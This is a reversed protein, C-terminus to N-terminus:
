KQRKEYINIPNEPLVIEKLARDHWRRVTSTDVFMEAAIQEWTFDDLFRLRLVTQGNTDGVSNITSKIQEKLEILTDIENNVTEELAMLKEVTRVFPAETPASGRIHEEFGPSSISYLMSRLRASERLDSNIIQDLRYAQSLFEKANM